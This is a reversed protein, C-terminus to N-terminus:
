GRSEDRSEDQRTPALRALRQQVRDADPALAMRQFADLSQKLHVAGTETDGNNLHCGGLGELARAEEDPQHTERALVLADGYLALARGHDGTAAVEAAYHNLAWTENGRAGIRRFVDVAERLGPIAGQHDGAAGRVRARLVRVNAQGLRDGLREYLEL